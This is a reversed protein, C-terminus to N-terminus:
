DFASIFDGHDLFWIFCFCRIVFFYLFFCFRSYGLIGICLWRGFCLRLSLSRCLSFCRCTFVAAIGVAMVILIQVTISDAIMIVSTCMVIVFVAIMALTICVNIIVSDTITVTIIVVTVSLPVMLSVSMATTVM